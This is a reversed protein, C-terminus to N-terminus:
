PSSRAAPDRPFTEVTGDHRHETHRQDALFVGCQERPAAAIAVIQRLRAAGQVGMHDARGVGMRLDPADVCGRRLREGAHEGHYCAFVHALEGIGEQDRQLLRHMLPRQRNLPHAIHALRHRQHNGLAPVDGFVRGLKDHDIVLGESSHDVWKVTRGTIKAAIATLVIYPFVSLKIGFSGGSDPPIRLRMKTGPVRLAKAMVPHTSFPGQFNAMVDYSKDHPRYEAVVVYCEM